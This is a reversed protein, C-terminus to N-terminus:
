RPGGPRRQRRRTGPPHVPPGTHSPSGAKPAQGSLASYLTAALAYIDAAASMLEPLYAEPAVFPRPGLPPAPNSAAFCILGFDGLMPEGDANIYINAPRLDRHVIDRAHAATM